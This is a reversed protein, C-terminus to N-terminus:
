LFVTSIEDLTLDFLEITIKELSDEDGEFHFVRQIHTISENPSLYAGPSSTEIEYFPGMISGDDVPGDNYSNIVDGNFPDDQDGWNGNLYPNDTDPSSCWLVTLLKSKSDYSAAMNKAREKPIGIKSRFKGDIKFFVNGDKAILRESPVKGFYEDNVVPINADEVEEEYPIFVTTTPSPSFMCLLWISLLGNDENWEQEGVNTLTNETEYAVAKLGDVNSIDLASTIESSGLLKVSRNIKVGLTNGLANSVQSIREMSISNSSQEIVRYEETDIFPPVVWNEFSQEEGKNFYPSNSGGEPGIWFREEGGYVNFQDSKVGEEIFKYNLWGYSTGKSGDSTSTMIRGQWQPVVIIKSDGNQSELEVVQVNHQRLFDYDYGYTGKEMLNEKVNCSMVSLVTLSLCLYRLVNM